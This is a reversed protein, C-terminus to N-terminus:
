FASPIRQGSSDYGRVSSTDFDDQQAPAPKPTVPENKEGVFQGDGTWGRMCSSDIDHRFPVTTKIDSM